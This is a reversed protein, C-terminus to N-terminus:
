EEEMVSNVFIKKWEIPHRKANNITGKSQLLKTGMQKNKSKNRIGEAASCLFYQQL